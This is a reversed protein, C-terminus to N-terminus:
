LPLLREFDATFSMTAFALDPPLSPEKRAFARFALRLLDINPRALRFDPADLACGTRLRDALKGPEM